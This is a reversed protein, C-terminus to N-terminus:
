KVFISANKSSHTEVNGGINIIQCVSYGYATVNARAGHMVMVHYPKYTRRTRVTANTNGAVVLNDVDEIDINGADVYINMSALEDRHQRLMDLTPFGHNKCFERGQPTGMLSGLEAISNARVILDCAGIKLAITKIEEATM